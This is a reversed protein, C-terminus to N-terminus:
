CVQCCAPITRENLGPDWISLVMQTILLICFADPQAAHGTGALGAAAARWFAHSVFSVSASLAKTRSLEADAAQSICKGEHLNSHQELHHLHSLGAWRICPALQLDSHVELAAAQKRQSRSLGEEPM